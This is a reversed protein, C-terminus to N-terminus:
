KEKRDTHERLFSVMDALMQPSYWHGLNQYVNWSTCVRVDELCKAMTKGGILPVKEDDVGHGLFIPTDFSPPRSTPGQSDIELSEKLAQVVAACVDEPKCHAEGDDKEFPDYDFEVGDPDQQSGFDTIVREVTGSFPLYGCMGLYGGLRGGEWLLLAVLSAACGQSIGGLIMNETGVIEAEARLLDHLYTITAQLGEIARWEQNEATNIAATATLALDYSDFWQNIISRKYLTARQRPACPFIFKATPYLSRLTVLESNTGHPDPLSFESSLLVPGFKKASSGRGHLLIFTKQHPNNEIPPIILPEPIINLTPM